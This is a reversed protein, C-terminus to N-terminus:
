GSPRKTPGAQWLVLILVTVGAVIAVDALNFAPWIPLDLFDIVSGSRVRDALNGLAGGTLLGVALWLDPREPDLAFYALLLALSGLTLLLVLAEGGALLGFAVGDNRVESIELGFVLEVSEGRELQSAVLQKTAQDVAVVAGMLAVARAWARSARREEAGRETRTETETRVAMAEPADAPM